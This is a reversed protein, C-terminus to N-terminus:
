SVSYLLRTYSSQHIPTVLVALGRRGEGERLHIALTVAGTPGRWREGARPLREVRGPEVEAPGWRRLSQESEAAGLGDRLVVLGGRLVLPGGRLVM